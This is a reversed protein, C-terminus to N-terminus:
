LLDSEKVYYYGYEWDKYDEEIYDFPDIRNWGFEPSDEAVAIILDCDGNYTESELEYGCVIGKLGDSHYAEQGIFKNKSNIKKNNFRM